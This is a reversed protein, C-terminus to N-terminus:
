FAGEHSVSVKKNRLGEVSIKPNNLIYLNLNKNAGIISVYFRSKWVMNWSEYLPEDGKIDLM